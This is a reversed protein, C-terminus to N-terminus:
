NIKRIKTDTMTNEHPLTKNDPLIMENHLHYQYIQINAGNQLYLKVPVLFNLIALFRRKYSSLSINPRYIKWSTYM